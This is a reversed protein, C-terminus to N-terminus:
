ALLPAPIRVSPPFIVIVPPDTTFLVTVALTALLPKPPPIKEPEVTPPAPRTRFPTVTDPLLALPAPLTGPLPPPMAFEPVALMVLAVIEPLWAFGTPETAPFPPPM